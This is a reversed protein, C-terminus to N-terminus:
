AENALHQSIRCVLRQTMPLLGDPDDTRLRALQDELFALQDRVVDVEGLRLHYLAFNEACIGHGKTGCYKGYLLQGKRALMARREPALQTREADM